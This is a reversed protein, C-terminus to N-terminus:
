RLTKGNVLEHLCSLYYTEANKITQQMAANLERNKEDRFNMLTTSMQCSHILVPIVFNIFLYSAHFYM